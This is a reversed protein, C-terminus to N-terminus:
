ERGFALVEEFAPEDEFSGIVQELRNPTSPPYSLRRQLEAVAAEVASSRQEIPAEAPITRDGQLLSRKQVIM